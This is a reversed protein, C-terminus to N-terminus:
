KGGPKAADKFTPVFSLYGNHYAFVVALAIGATKAM